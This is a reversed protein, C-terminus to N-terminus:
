DWILSKSNSFFVSAVNDSKLGKQPSPHHAKTLNEYFMSSHNSIHSLPSLLSNQLYSYIIIFYLRPTFWVGIIVLICHVSFGSQRLQSWFSVFLVFYFLSVFWIWLNSYIQTIKIGLSCIFNWTHTTGDPSNTCELYIEFSRKGVIRSSNAMLIKKFFAM